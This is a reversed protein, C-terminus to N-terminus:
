MLVYGDCPVSPPKPLVDLAVPILPGAGAMCLPSEELRPWVESGCFGCHKGGFGMLLLKWHPLPSGVAPIEETTEPRLPLDFGM